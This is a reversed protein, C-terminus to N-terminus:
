IPPPFVNIAQVVYLQFTKARSCTCGDAKPPSPLRRGHGLSLQTERNEHRHSLYSTDGESSFTELGLRSGRLELINESITCSTPVSIYTCPVLVRPAAVTNASALIGIEGVVGQLSRQPTDNHLGTSSPPHVVHEISRFFSSLRALTPTFFTPALPDSESYTFSHQWKNQGIRVHVQVDELLRASRSHARLLPKICPLTLGAHNRTRTSSTSM